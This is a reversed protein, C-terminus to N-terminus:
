EHIGITRAAKVKRIFIDIMYVSSDFRSKNPHPFAMSLQRKVTVQANFLKQDDWVRNMDNANYDAPHMGHVLIEPTMM